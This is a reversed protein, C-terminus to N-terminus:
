IEVETSNQNEESEDQEVCHSCITDHFCVISFIFLIPNCLLLISFEHKDM